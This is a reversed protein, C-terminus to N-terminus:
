TPVQSLLTVPTPELYAADAADSEAAHRLKRLPEARQRALLWPSARQTHGCGHIVGVPIDTALSAGPFALFRPLAPLESGLLDFHQRTPNERILILAHLKEAQQELVDAGVPRHSEAIRGHPPRCHICQARLNCRVARPM